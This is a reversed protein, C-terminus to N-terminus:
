YYYLIAFSSFSNSLDYSHTNGPYSLDCRVGIGRTESTELIVYHYGCLSDYSSTWNSCIESNSSSLNFSLDDKAFSDNVNLSLSIFFSGLLAFVFLFSYRKLCIM